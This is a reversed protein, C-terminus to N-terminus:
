SGLYSEIVRPDNIVSEADGEAILRGSALVCVHDCLRRVFRMNHEILLIAVGDDAVERFIAALKYAEADNMGAVPEDLLLLRPETALARMMEIRRQHGYSLSGAPWDAMATMGFRDLLEDTRALLARRERFASPLGLLNALTSTKEHLHFGALVNDRVSADRVLRINQFTRAIGMRSLEQAERTSVDEGDLLVQGRSLKLLGAIMNVVTTKGAGNPGILGTIRGREASMNLSDVAPLGGFDRGVGQLALMSM